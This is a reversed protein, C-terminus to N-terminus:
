KRVCADSGLSIVARLTADDLDTLWSEGGRLIAQALARKEELVADIREELTGQCILKYVQVTQHQGIRYARDTAQDEVAPNWWRDYHIVHTARTLNLGTAGARLSVLLVPSPSNPRQFNQVINERQKLSCGGHLFPVDWGYGETIARQLRLGMERYQTFLIIYERRSAITKILYLCRELKESRRELPGSDGLYHSPHNCIQKLATLLALINGRREIGQQDVLTALGADCASQYLETQEKTLPCYIRREIKKPLDQIVSPDSKLRRLLFPTIGLRLQEAAKTDSFREIPLAVHRIFHNRSGLLGPNLFAMLSWLEELRNEVPTGTLSVRHRARLSRAAMSRRSAPNKIAQAEDLTVVDWDVEALEPQDRVLLGYTTLVVNAKTASALQRELGHYQVVSLCPAFNTLERTWNGIVSTPCVILNPRAASSQHRHLLYAILQITKGLGMDDALCAGLGLEGLRCLWSFGVHQYSRLTGQLTAPVPRCVPEKLSAVLELLASDTVVTIGEHDGTLVAKLAEPGSLYGATTLQKPLREVESPELIIWEGRFLVLPSRQALLTSFDRGDLIKEGLIIEWTFEVKSDSSFPQPNTDDWVLRMQPRARQGGAQEFDAPIEVQFGADVLPQVGAELFAWADKSHWTLAQPIRGKLSASLPPFIRAARAMLRILTYAPHYHVQGQIQLSNGAKWVEHIPVRFEPQEQARVFYDVAFPTNPDETLSLKILLQLSSAEVASSWQSLKESISQHRADRIQFESTKGKLSEALSLEWGRCSGPYQNQRYIHDITTDIFNRIVLNPELLAIRGASSTPSSRGSPPLARALRDM